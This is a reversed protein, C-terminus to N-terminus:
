EDELRTYIMIRINKNKIHSTFLKITNYPQTTFHDLTSLITVEEVDYNNLIDSSFIANERTTTSKDELILLEKDVGLEKTLINYMVSAESVGAKKNAIGGSLIIKDPNLRAIAEKTYEMRKRLEPHATGDNNLWYGLVIIFKM